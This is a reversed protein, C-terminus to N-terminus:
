KDGEKKEDLPKKEALKSIIHNLGSMVMNLLYTTQCEFCLILENRGQPTDVIVKKLAKMEGCGQCRQSILSMKWRRKLQAINKLDKKQKGNEGQQFPVHRFIDGSLLGIV